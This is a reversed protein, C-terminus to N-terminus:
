HREHRLWAIDRLIESVTVTDLDGFTIGGSTSRTPHLRVEISQKPSGNLDWTPLGPDCSLHLVRGHPLPKEFSDIYGGDGTEPPLWGRSALGLLRPGEVTAGAGGLVDRDRLNTPLAHTERDLQPFPQLLEYDAFIERWSTLEGPFRLPHAVGLVADDTLTIGDDASDAFGRDEAIRFTTTLADGEYVGWVLRRTVQWRLPHGIFLTHLEDVTFRRQVVMARELRRIQDTAITRANKKLARFDKHAQAAREPDDHVGPKPLSRVQTGDATAVTPRLQEDFGVVFRRPGFDLVATGDARLGLDPVLRDALQDATLGLREAVAEIREKAGERVRTTKVKEGIHRLALLAADSGIAVFADLASVSRPDSRHARVHNLLAAVTDDDGFSGLADYVWSHRTPAGARQWQSFLEWALDALSAPDCHRYVQAVGAYPEFPDALMLMVLLNEVAAAPLTAGDATRVPPLAATNIWAPVAPLRAPLLTLPDAALLAAVAATTKDGYEAAAGHIDGDHGHAALLRLVRTALRRDKAASGVARPILVRAVHHAHRRLYRLAGPRLTRRDLRTIALDILETGAYPVIADEMDHPYERAAAVVMPYAATEFAAIAAKVQKSPGYLWRLRSAALIPLAREPGALVLAGLVQETLTGDARRELTKDLDAYDDPRVLNRWEEREGPLWACYPETPAALEPVVAAAKGRKRNQWPPNRLIGPIGVEDTTPQSAMRGLESNILEATTTPLEPRLQRALEPHGHIHERLIDGHTGPDLLRLARMPFRAAAGRVAALAPPRLIRAALAAFAADTPIVGLADAIPVRLAQTTGPHDFWHTLMEVVEFGVGDVVTIAMGPTDIALGETGYWYGTFLSNLRRLQAVSWAADVLLRADGTSGAAVAEEIDAAVWERRSPLLVSTVVRAWRSTGRYRDLVAVAAVLEEESCGALRNRLAGSVARMERVEGRADWQPPRVWSPETVARMLVEAAFGLGRVASWSDLLARVDTVARRREGGSLHHLLEMRRRLLAAASEVRLAGVEGLAAGVGVAGRPARLLGDRRFLLQKLQKATPEFVSEGGVRGTATSRHASVAM